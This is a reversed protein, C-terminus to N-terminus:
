MSKMAKFKDLLQMHTKYYGKNRFTEEVKKFIESTRFKKGDMLAIVQLDKIIALFCETEKVDWTAPKKKGQGNNKIMIIHCRFVINTYVDTVAREEITTM